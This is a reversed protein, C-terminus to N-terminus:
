RAVLSTQANYHYDENGSDFGSRNNGEVLKAKQLSELWRSCDYAIVGAHQQHNSLYEETSLIVNFDSTSQWEALQNERELLFSNANDLYFFYHPDDNSEVQNIIAGDDSVMAMLENSEPIVLGKKEMIETALTDVGLVQKEITNTHDQISPPYLIGTDILAALKENNHSITHSDLRDYVEPSKNPTNKVLDVPADQKNQVKDGSSGAQGKQVQGM